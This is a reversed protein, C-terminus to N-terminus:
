TDSTASDKTPASAPQLPVVEIYAGTTSASSNTSTGYNNTANAIVSVLDGQSLDFPNAQLTTLPIDCYKNTMITATSGDCNTNDEIYFGESNKIM